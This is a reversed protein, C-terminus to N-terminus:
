PPCCYLRGVILGTSNSLQCLEGTASYASIDAHQQAINSYDPTSIGVFVGVGEGM